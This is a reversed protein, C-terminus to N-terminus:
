VQMDEQKEAGVLTPSEVPESSSGAGSNTLGMFKINMAANINRDHTSLCETCTWSRIHLPLKEVKTGCNSCTKSSPEFRGIKILNKGKWLCKYELQRIFEGWSVDSITQALNHNKVMGKINLDEICITDVQSDNVIKTSLKHLFDKRINTVKEYQKAVKLNAKKRNQSGKKKRSVRRQLVRLRSLGGKLPRPANVKTGDSFTAFSSIGLDIGLTTEEKITKKDPVNDPTEVLISAFYKGTPTRSITVSKIKGDFKRSLRIPIDKIKPITLTSNEWNIRRTNNPCTFSQNGRNKSKFKPYGGGRFLNQFAKEVNKISYQLAQSDVQKIWEHDEKLETLQYCLDFASLNKGCEKYARIKTELSLNYLLRCVSISHDIKVKQEETPYLRYKYGKCIM